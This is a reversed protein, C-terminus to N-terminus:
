FLLNYSESVPQKLHGNHETQEVTSNTRTITTPASTVAPYPLPATRPGNLGGPTSFIGTPPKSPVM